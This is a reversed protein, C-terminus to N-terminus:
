QLQNLNDLKFGAQNSKMRIGSRLLHIMHKNKWHRLNELIDDKSLATPGDAPVEMTKAMTSGKSGKKKFHKAKNPKKKEVPFTILEQIVGTELANM